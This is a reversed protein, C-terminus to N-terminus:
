KLLEEVVKFALGLLALMTALYQFPSIKPDSAADIVSSISKHALLYTARFLTLAIMAASLFVLHWLCLVTLILLFIPNGLAAGSGGVVPLGSDPNLAGFVLFGILTTAAATLLLAVALLMFSGQGLLSTSKNWRRTLFVVLFYSASATGVAFLMFCAWYASDIWTIAYRPIPYDWNPELVRRGLYFTAVVAIYCGIWFLIWGFPGFRRSLRLAVFHYAVAPVNLVTPRDLFIFARVLADRTKTKTDAKIHYDDLFKAAAVLLGM